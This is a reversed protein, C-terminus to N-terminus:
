DGWKIPVLMALHMQEARKLKRVYFGPKVPNRMVKRIYKNQAIKM